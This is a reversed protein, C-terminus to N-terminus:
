RAEETLLPSKVSESSSDPATGNVIAKLATVLPVATADEHPLPLGDLLESAWEREVAAADRGASVVGLLDIMHSSAASGLTEGGKPRASMLDTIKPTIELAHITALWWAPAVADRAVDAESFSTESLAGKLAVYRATHTATGAILIEAKVRRSALAVAALLTHVERLLVVVSFLTTKSNCSAFRSQWNTEATTLKRAELAATALTREIKAQAAALQAERLETAQVAAARALELQARAIEIEQRKLAVQAQEPTEPQEALLAARAAQAEARATQVERARAAADDLAVQTAAEAAARAADHAVQRM